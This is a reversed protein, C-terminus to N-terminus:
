QLFPDLTGSQQPQQAPTYARQGGGSGNSTSSAVAQKAPPRRKALPMDDDSDSLTLDVQQASLICDYSLVTQYTTSQHERSVTESNSTSTPQEDQAPSLDRKVPKADDSILEPLTRFVQNIDFCNLLNRTLRNGIDDSIVEVKQAPKSPTDLIQTESRLGPTSWSGDQHLQIETDDSKLLSSGLV